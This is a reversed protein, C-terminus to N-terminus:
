SSAALDHLLLQLSGYGGRDSGISYVIDVKSGATVAADGLGFGIAPWVVREDRLKLRLHRDGAGVTRGEVVTVDRSWLVPEPNGVGCPAMRQLWRIEEGGVGALPVVADVDIVPTLDVGALREGACAVLRERIEPLRESDATFGAAQRHGGFRLFLDGCERLAGAIDFEPISRASARSVSGDPSYVVCPRYLEEALRSAVLGAVGPAIGEDGIVLLPSSADMEGLLGRALELASAQQRQRERNLADLERALDRARAQEQCLLLEIGLRAHAIRGAANLRPGLMFSLAETDLTSPEVRSVDMLAQLGRRETRRLADVGRRALDRNAGVLPAMDVVTGLAALELCRDRPFDRGLADHLALALYYALGASALGAHPCDPDLKPNLIAQADPLRELPLHHDVIIVDMGLARAHAVEDLSSTGCDVALLLAAGEERLRSIAPKNLGYGELFRDPVYSVVHAGLSALGEILIVSATLGDVDFDGFVAVTEGARAAEALRAVAKDLDPLAIAEAEPGGDFFPRAADLGALGRVELLRRILPPYSSGDLAGDCPNERLRWRRKVRM